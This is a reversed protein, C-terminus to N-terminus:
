GKRRQPWEPILRWGTPHFGMEDAAKVFCAICLAPENDAWPSPATRIVENWFTTDTFWVINNITACESCQEGRLHMPLIALISKVAREQQQPTMEALRGEIIETLVDEPKKEGHQQRWEDASLAVTLYAGETSSATRTEDSM